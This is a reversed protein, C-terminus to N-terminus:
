SVPQLHLGCIEIHINDYDQNSISNVVMNYLHWTQELTWVLMNFTHIEVNILSVYITYRKHVSHLDDPIYIYQKLVM